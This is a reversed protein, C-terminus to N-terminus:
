DESAEVLEGHTTPWWNWKGLLVVISPVILTRVLFTDMLIGLALGLGIERVETNGNGGVIAFVGFTGALVLGASTVTTGTTTLAKAVAEKLKIDHTEERIRTMVLINYDEGLALLFIFMLFPLIFTLGPSHGFKTFLLVSLGLSALYSLAVSAILYLPAILSRLLIALLIGIVVIAIPVVRKLDDNSIKSIDYLATSEGVVGSGSAGVKDAVKQVEARVAPTSNLASTSGPDGATLGVNYIVTKGDKSVLASLIQYAEYERVFEPNNQAAPNSAIAQLNLKGSLGVPAGFANHLTSIESSTLVLGNPNLPGTVHSFEPSAALASQITALQNPNQWVSEPLVFIISTPNESNSPFHKAILADGMASDTGSPAATTGGFGAAKYQPVFLALGGLVIIGAVLIPVPKQTVSASIRGWLGYKPKKSKRLSPWFVARGFIALLAPLLTLGALLMLGIGIALPIGLNSYLQFTAFLLSLLAAIVTVASFTISEGVRSMAEEIAPKPKLGGQIEERVRFILFLGYDTGAGLILVTMLLQALSSVKLGHSAAEAVIPGALTVVFLPPVLTIIPALPARFILLLLIIIFIVAGLQVQSNTSGSKKANDVTDALQGTLHVQLGSPITTKSIESRLSDIITTPDTNAGGSVIVDFEGAQGDPSIATSRVGKVGSVSKINTQLTNITAVDAQTLSSGDNTAIVVGITPSSSSKDLSSALNIAKQSPASAPLFSTNNSQTVSSLSPFNHVAAITGFIWVIVVLWRFRVSFKGISRFIRYGINEPKAGSTSKPKNM